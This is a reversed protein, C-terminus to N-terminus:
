LFHYDTHQWTRSIYLYLCEDYHFELYCSGNNSLLSIDSFSFSLSSARFIFSVFNNEFNLITVSISHDKNGIYSISTWSSCFWWWLETKDLQEIENYYLLMKWKYIWINMPDSMRRKDKMYYIKYVYIVTYTNNGRNHSLM